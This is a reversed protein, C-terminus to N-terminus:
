PIIRLDSEAAPSVPLELGVVAPGDPTDPRALALGAETRWAVVDGSDSWHFPPKAGSGLRVPAHDNSSLVFAGTRGHVISTGTPSLSVVEVDNRVSPLTWVEEFAWTTVHVACEDGRCARAVLGAESADLVSGIAEPVLREGDVTYVRSWGDARTVAVGRGEVVHLESSAPIGTASGTTPAWLSGIWLEHSSDETTRLFVFLDSALRVMQVENSLRGSNAWEADDLGFTRNPSLLLKVGDALPPTDFQFYPASSAREGTEAEYVHLDGADDAFAIRRGALWGEPPAPLPEPSPTNAVSPAPLAVSSPPPPPPADALPELSSANALLLLGFALLMALVLLPARSSTHQPGVRVENAPSEGNVSEFTPPRVVARETNDTM